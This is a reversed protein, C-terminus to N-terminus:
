TIDDLTRLNLSAFFADLAENLSNQLKCKPFLPCAIKGDSFCEVLRLNEETNKLIEGVPLAGTQPEIKLGGFRGRVAQLYGLKVLKNVVKILHNRSVNLAESLENLTALEGSRNLYILTRLSYDSFDTLRMFGAHLVTQIHYTPHLM